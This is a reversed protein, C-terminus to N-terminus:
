PEIEKKCTQPRGARRSRGPAAFTHIEKNKGTGFTAACEYLEGHKLRGFHRAMAQVWQAFKKPENAEIEPGLERCVATALDTRSM